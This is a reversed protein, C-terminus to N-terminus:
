KDQEWEKILEQAQEYDAPQGIDLWSERIPFSAVRRQQHLLRQILDTMDMREGPSLLKYVSPELLYIGANVFFNFVPKETVGRVSAGDSEVVGFPVQVDYQRVAVTLDAQQSRHFQLMAQFNVQTLIDGNIVLTTETPSELLGLCGATGLPRDEPVYSLEVGFQRGDGFHSEIKERQHHTSVNVRNIGSDRLRAIIIELLPKDGVPLMPKPTQETLPHLRSGKGGAMIVAQLPLLQRPLFEDRTVLGVVRQEQDLIPLHVIGHRQLLELYWNPDQGLAASIPQSFASGVKQELLAEVPRALEVRALMARRLDGDTVTGLLHREEDVVLVIGLRSRDMMAAADGVTSTRPICFTAYDQNM